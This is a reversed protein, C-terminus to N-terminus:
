TISETVVMCYKVWLTVVSQLLCPWIVVWFNIGILSVFVFLGVRQCVGVMWVAWKLFMCASHVGLCVWGVRFVCVCVEGKVLVSGWVNVCLLDINPPAPHPTCPPTYWHRWGAKWPKNKPKSSCWPCLSDTHHLAITKWDTFPQQKNKSKSIFHLSPSFHLSFVWSSWTNKGEKRSDKVKYFCALPLPSKHQASTFPKPIKWPTHASWLIHAPIFTHQTLTNFPSSLNKLLRLCFEETCSYCLWLQFLRLSEQTQTIRWWGIKQRM